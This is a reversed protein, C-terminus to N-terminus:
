MTAEFLYRRMRTNLDAVEAPEMVDKNRTKMEGIHKVLEDTATGLAAKDKAEKAKRRAIRLDYLKVFDKFLAKEPNTIHPDKDIIDPLKVNASAANDLNGGSIAGDITRRTMELLTEMRRPGRFRRNLMFTVFSVGKVPSDGDKWVLGRDADFTIKDAITDAEPHSFVVYRGAVLPLSAGEALTAFAARLVESGEDELKMADLAHRKYDNPDVHRVDGWERKAADLQAAIGDSTHTLSIEVTLPQGRYVFPSIVVPRRWAFYGDDEPKKAQGLMAQFDAGQPLAGASKLLLVLPTALGGGFIRVEEVAINVYHENAKIANPGPDTVRKLENGVLMYASVKFGQRRQGPVRKVVPAEDKKAKNLEVRRYTVRVGGCGLAMSAGLTAALTILSWTKM